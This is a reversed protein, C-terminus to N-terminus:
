LADGAITPRTGEEEGLSENKEDEDLIWLSTFEGHNIIGVRQITQV